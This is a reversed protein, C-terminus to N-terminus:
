VSCGMFLVGSCQQAEPSAAAEIQTNVLPHQGSLDTALQQDRTAHAPLKAVDFPSALPSKNAKDDGAGVARLV